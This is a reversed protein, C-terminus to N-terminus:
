EGCECECHCVTPLASSEKGSDEDVDAGDDVDETDCGQDNEDNSFEDDQDIIILRVHSSIPIM